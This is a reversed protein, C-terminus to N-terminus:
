WTFEELMEDLAMEVREDKIDRLSLYLSLPDVEREKLTLVPGYSWVQVKAFAEDRSQVVRIENVELAHNFTHESAAFVPTKPEALMSRSALASEGATVWGSLTIKNIAHQIQSPAPDPSNLDAAGVWEEKMVPNRLVNSTAEWTGKADRNFQILRERGRTIRRGLGHEELEKFARSITMASYPLSGSLGSQSLESTWGHLIQAILIAQTAPALPKNVPTRKRSKFHERLDVGLWPLFMQNGPVIFSVGQQILRKRESSSLGELVMVVPLGMAKEAVEAHKRLERTGDFDHQVAMLLSPKNFLEM